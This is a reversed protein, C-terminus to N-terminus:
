IKGAEWLIRVNHCADSKEYRMYDEHQYILAYATKGDFQNDYAVVKVVRPDDEYFGENAIIEEAIQKNVTAM